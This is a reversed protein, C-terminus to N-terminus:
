DDSAGGFAVSILAKTYPDKPANRIEDRHGSEIVRGAKMILIDDCVMALEALDHSIYLLSLGRGEKLAILEDIIQRRVEADLSSTPEDAVLLNPSLAIAAAIAVRQKMGGSLQHPYQEMVRRPESLHVATLARAIQEHIAHRGSVRGSLIDAFQHRIRRVPNLAAGPDQFVMSIERGYLEARERRPMTLVNKGEYLIEGSIEAHPPLIGLLARTLTSKGAGSEGAVGLASGRKLRLNLGEVAIQREGGALYSITVDHFQLM